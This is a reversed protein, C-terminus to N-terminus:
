YECGNLLRRKNQEPPIFLPTFVRVQTNAQLGSDVLYSLVTSVTIGKSWVDDIILASTYTELRGDCNFKIGKRAQEVTAGGGVKFGDVKRFSASLDVAKPNRRHVSQSVPEWHFRAEDRSSPCCIVLDFQPHAKEAHKIYADRYIPRHKEYKM